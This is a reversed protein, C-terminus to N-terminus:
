MKYRVQVVAGGIFLVGTHFRLGFMLMVKSPLQKDYIRRCQLTFSGKWAPAPKRLAVVRVTGM